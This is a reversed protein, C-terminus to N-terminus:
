GKSSGLTVSLLWLDRKQSPFAFAPHTWSQSAPKWLWMAISNMREWVRASPLCSGEVASFSFQVSVPFVCALMWILSKILHDYHHNSSMQIIQQTTQPSGTHFWIKRPRWMTIFNGVQELFRNAVSVLCTKGRQNPSSLLNEAVLDFWQLVWPCFFLYSLNRQFAALNLCWTVSFSKGQSAVVTLSLWESCCLTFFCVTILLCSVFRQQDCCSM